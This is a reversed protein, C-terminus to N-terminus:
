CVKRVTKVCSGGSKRIPTGKSLGLASWVSRGGSVLGAPLHDFIRFKIEDLRSRRLIKRYSAASLWGTSYCKSAIRRRGFVSSSWNSTNRGHTRYVAIPQNIFGVMFQHTIRVWLDLDEVAKLASDEDFWGVQDLVSRQVMVTSIGIGRWNELLKDFIMGTDTLLRPLLEKGTAVDRVIFMGHVMGVQPHHHLYEVQLKLKNPLWLDDGDLFTIYNGQVERLARNRTVSPLGSHLIQQFRIRPDSYRGVVESINDSSGDDIIFMEWQTYTQELVSRIADGVLHAIQYTGTIISVLPDTM